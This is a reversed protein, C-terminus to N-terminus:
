SLAKQLGQCAYDAAQEASIKLQPNTIQFCYAEMVGILLFRQYERPHQPQIWGEQLAQDLLVDILQIMQLMINEMIEESVYQKLERKGVSSLLTQFPSLQSLAKERATLIQRFGAEFGQDFQLLDCFSDFEKHFTYMLTERIIEEKSSFYEYCTGKGIGCAQAIESVKLDNMSRGQQVLSIVGLYVQVKKDENM